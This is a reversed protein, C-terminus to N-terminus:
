AEAELEGAARRCARAALGTNFGRGVLYRIIRAEAKRRDRGKEREWRARAANMALEQETEQDLVEGPVAAAVEPDVRKERLKMELYRRGVAKSRLCDRCYAEAYRRDSYLGSDNMQQLVGDVAETGFGADTLKQRLRAVPYLRKDLMAFLRRAVQKREAALKIEALLPSSISEGVEPLKGPVSGPALEFVEGSDLTLWVSGQEERVAALVRQDEIM